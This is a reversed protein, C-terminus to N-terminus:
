ANEPVLFSLHLEAHRCHLRQWQEPTLPGFFAHPQRPTETQLRLAAQRFLTLGEEWSTSPPVLARASQNKLQFGPSMPSKLMRGKVLRGLLRMPWALRFRPGDLSDTMASALHRLIQGGSWNGLTTLKSKDLREVEAAIDAITEFHLPRRNQVKSTDVAM